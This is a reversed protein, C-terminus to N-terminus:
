DKICRLYGDPAVTILVKDPISPDIEFRDNTKLFEQVATWPNNGPGWPRNPFFAKPM